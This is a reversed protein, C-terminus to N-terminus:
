ARAAAEALPKMHEYAEGAFKNDPQANHYNFGIEMSLFGDDVIDHLDQVLGVFNAGALQPPM